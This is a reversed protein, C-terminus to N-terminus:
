PRMLEPHHERLWAIVAERFGRAEEVLEALETETIQRAARYAVAHRRQRCSDFYEAQEQWRATPVARLFEFLVQHQGPGSTARFGEAIMVVEALARAAAYAHQYRGDLSLAEVTCDSLERQALELRARVQAALRDGTLGHKRIREERLLDEYIM